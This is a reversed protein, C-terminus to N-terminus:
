YSRYYNYRFDEIKYQEKVQKLWGRYAREQELQFSESFIEKSAVKFGEEDAEYKETLEMLYYGKAGAIPGVLEGVENRLVVSTFALDRGVNRVYDAFRFESETLVVNLGEAVAKEEWNSVDALSKLFAECKEKAAHMKKEYLLKDVIEKRINELPQLSEPQIGEIKFVMWGNALPYIESVTEPPKSYIFDVASKMRGLGPIFAGKKFYETTDVILNYTAATQIFDGEKADETFSAMKNTIVDRSDATPEFKLQIMRIESQLEGERKERGEVKYFGIGYKSEVPGRWKGVSTAWVASDGSAELRNKGRWGLYGSDQATHHESYLAAQAAFDAGRELRARIEEAVERTDASDEATTIYDQKTYIIRRMEPILYEARHLFYYDEVEEAMVSNSDVKMSDAAFLLYKARGSVHRERYLMKMEPHTVEVSFIIQSVLKQQLLSHRYTQEWYIIQDRNRPDALYARYKNIDFQGETQFYPSSRVYDFPNNLLLNVIESDSVTIGRHAIEKSMLTEEILSDWVRNRIETLAEGEPRTGSRQFQAEAEQNVMNEYEDSTIQEGAIIGVVGPKVREQFGGMGWSFIITGVFAIVLIWLILPMRRRLEKMM